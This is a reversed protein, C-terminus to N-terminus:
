LVQLINDKDQDRKVNVRGLQEACIDLFSSIVEMCPFNKLANLMAMKASVYRTRPGLSVTVPFRTSCLTRHALLYTFNGLVLWAKSM